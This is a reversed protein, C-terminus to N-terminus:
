PAPSPTVGQGLGFQARGVDYISTGGKRTTIYICNNEYAAFIAEVNKGRKVEAAGSFMLANRLSEGLEITQTETFGINLMMTVIDNATLPQTLSYRNNRPTIQLESAAKAKGLRPWRWPGCGATSLCLMLALGVYVTSRRPTRIENVKKNKWEM